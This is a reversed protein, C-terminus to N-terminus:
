DIVEISDKPIDISTKFDPFFTQVTIPNKMKEAEVFVWHDSGEPFFGFLYSNSKFTQGNMEMVNLNAVYCRYEGQERVVDSVSLVEAKIFKFGDEEMKVFMAEIQPLMVDVGGSVELINPHTYDLVTKFDKELTAQATIKADKLASERSQAYVSSTTLLLLFILIKSTM